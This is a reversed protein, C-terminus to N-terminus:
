QESEDAALPYDEFRPLRGDAFAAIDPFRERWDTPLSYRGANVHNRAYALLSRYALGTLPLDRAHEFGQHRDRHTPRRQNVLLFDEEGLYNGDFPMTRPVNNVAMLAFLREKHALLYQFDEEIWYDRLATRELDVLRHAAM